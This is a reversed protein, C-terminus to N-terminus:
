NGKFKFHYYYSNSHSSRKEKAQKIEKVFNMLARKIRIKQFYNEINKKFIFLLFFVHENVRIKKFINKM